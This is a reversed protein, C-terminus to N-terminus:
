LRRSPQVRLRRLMTIIRAQKSSTRATRTQKTRTNVNKRVNRHTKAAITVSKTTLGAKSSQTTKSM